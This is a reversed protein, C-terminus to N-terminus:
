DDGMSELVDDLLRLTMEVDSRGIVLPPKIKIVNHLPGDTSLLVGRDRMRNVLEEAEEAAPELTNRDRVLEIGLFLGRGRVDGIMSHRDKLTELGDLFLAGLDRAQRQLGEEEIVDLVAMGCACSVPNGGFTSFFEMGNDFADAIARTTVVAAMPHGNGIPKGMVVIDPVVGHEEFAWFHEGTRGFGVQVEDSICMGGAKRVHQFAHELYGEPLPIQGGCSLISEVFFGCISRGAACAEGIIRGVELAYGAGADDDRIEGRYADPTPVVHVWEPKGRGGPGDFKYPSMDICASTHGHYAGDVVLVDHAGTATRALRLALENAESGCNVLFCTDLPEPLTDCLRKAYDGLLGNLYRTNTNLRRSQGHVAEVVKPHCHGVHCVNNVLDLYPNGDAEHLYQARGEVIQLPKRYSISLSSGISRNREEKLRANSMPVSRKSRCKSFLRARAEAPSIEINRRLADLTSSEHSFWTEHSADEYRRRIGILASCALRAMILPFLVTEECPELSRIADYGAVLTAADELTASESQLAYALSIALDQILAGRQTDGADVVGTIDDNAFLINEDNPDGHLMGPPCSALRPLAIACYLHMCRELKVRLCPNGFRAISDRYRDVRALDWAHTRRADPHEDIFGDMAQHINAIMRGINELRPTTQKLDRWQTGPLHGQLRATAATGEHSTEIITDGSRSAIAEPVPIGAHLLKALVKEELRVDAEPDITIKLVHTRDTDTQVLFNLNEGPLRTLDAEVSWHRSLLDKALAITDTTSDAVGDIRACGGRGCIFAASAITIM